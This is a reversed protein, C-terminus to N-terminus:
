LVVDDPNDGRRSRGADEISTGIGYAAGAVIPALIVVAEVVSDEIDTQVVGFSVLISIVAAWFKRSQLVGKLKPNM